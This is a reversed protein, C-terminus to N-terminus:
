ETGHHSFLYFSVTLNSIPLYNHILKKCIIKAVYTRNIDALNSNLASFAVSAVASYASSNVLPTTFRAAYVLQVDAPTNAIFQV